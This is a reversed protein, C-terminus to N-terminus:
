AQCTEIEGALAEISGGEPVGLHMIRVGKLNERLVDTTKPRLCVGRVSLEREMRLYPHFAMELIVSLPELSEELPVERHGSHGPVLMVLTRIPAEEVSRCGPVIDGPSVVLAEECYGEVAPILYRPLHRICFNARKALSRARPAHAGVPGPLDALWPLAFYHHPRLPISDLVMHAGAEHLLFRDDSLFDWGRQMLTLLAMTKCAGRLGTLVLGNSDRVLVAGHMMPTSRRMLALHLVYLAAGALKKAIKRRPVYRVQLSEGFIIGIDARGRYQLIAAPCGDLETLRYGRKSLLHDQGLGPVDGDGWPRLDVSPEGAAATGPATGAAPEAAFLRLRSELERHVADPADHSDLRVNCPLKYSVLSM